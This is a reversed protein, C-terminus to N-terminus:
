NPLWGDKLAEDLTFPMQEPFTDFDLGTEKAAEDRADEYADAVIEDIHEKLSPNKKLHKKYHRRQQKVTIQWSTTRKEPQYKWKLLHMLILTLYSELEREEGRGMSELEDAINEIDAEKLKGQRLLEANKFYWGYGDSEYLIKLNQNSMSQNYHVM